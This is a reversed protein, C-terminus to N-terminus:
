CNAKSVGLPGLVALIALRKKVLNKKEKDFKDKFSLKGIDKYHNACLCEQSKKALKTMQETAVNVNNNYYGYLDLVKLCNELNLTSKIIDDIPKTDITPIPTIKNYYWAKMKLASSFAGQPEELVTIIKESFLSRIQEDPDTLFDFNLLTMKETNKNKISTSLAKVQDITGGFRKFFLPDLIESKDETVKGDEDEKNGYLDVFADLINVFLGFEKSRYNRNMYSIIKTTIDQFISFSTPPYTEPMSDDMRNWQKQDLTFKDVLSGFKTDFDIRFDQVKPNLPMDCNKTQPNYIGGKSACEEKAKADPDVTVINPTSTYKEKSNAYAIKLGETGTTGAKCKGTYKTKAGEYTNSYKKTVCKKADLDVGNIVDEYSKTNPNGSADVWGKDNWYWKLFDEVNPPCETPQVCNKTNDVPPKEKKKLTCYKYSSPPTFCVQLNAQAKYTDYQAATITTWSGDCKSTDCGTEELILINKFKM